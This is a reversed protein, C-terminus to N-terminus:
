APADMLATACREVLKLRLRKAALWRNASAVASAPATPAGDGPPHVPHAIGAHLLLLVAQLVAGPADRLPALELLAAVSCPAQDFLRALLPDFVERPGEIDGISSRLRRGWTPGVSRIPALELASLAAARAAADLPRPERQFLDARQRQRRALDKLTERLAPSRASAVEAQLELPVSLEPQLNEFAEASAVFGAGARAFLAHLETAHEVSWFDSLLDHALDEASRGRLTALRAALEPQGQFLGAAVLRELLALADRIADSASGPHQRACESLLKQIPAMATSGPHCMYHLYLVGQPKLGTAVIRLLDRQAAPSVWSWTGHSALYDFPEAIGRAFGAFDTCRFEVNDLGIERAATQAQEVHRPNFDVGVFRGHPHLAAAAVLNLGSGCGLECYRFPRGVDPAAFGQLALMSSIWLPQMERYFYPPFDVDVVYGDRKNM